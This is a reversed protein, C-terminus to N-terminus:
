HNPQSIADLTTPDFSPPDRCELGLPSMGQRCDTSNAEIIHSVLTPCLERVLDARSASMTLGCAADQHALFQSWEPSQAQFPTSPSRFTEVSTWTVMRMTIHTETMM